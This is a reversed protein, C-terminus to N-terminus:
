EGTAGGRGIRILERGTRVLLAGDVAAVGYVRDPVTLSNRALEIPEAVDAALITATGDVGFVYVRDGNVISTAWAPSPLRAAWRSRGSRQELCRIVGLSNILCVAGGTVVPSSMGATAGRGRWLFKDGALPGRHELPVALTSRSDVSPVVLRGGALVAPSSLRNGSVDDIWWVREGNEADYAEVAGDVSVVVLDSGSRPLVVPTTWASRPPRDAKWRTEGTAPDVALLYSPGDHAVLVFLAEDNGALSSGLGYGKIEGYDATLARSWVPEGDHNLAGIDGSEFLYYVREADVWSTPAGKAVVPTVPTPQSSVLTHRWRLVGTAADVAEVIQTERRPGDIATVFVLGDWVVPSSQGYGGVAHRWAVNEEDSWTLPLDRAPSHGFAPGRFGPWRRAGLPAAPSSRRALGPPADVLGEASRMDVVDSPRLSAVEIRDVEANIRGHAAGGAIHLVGPGAVLAHYARDPEIAYALTEWADAEADLRFLQNSDSVYLNGGTAAIGVGVSRSGGPVPPAPAPALTRTGLDLRHVQLERGRPTIGGAVWIAEGHVAAALSHLRLGETEVVTWAVPDRDLDAVLVDERWDEAPVVPRRRRAGPVEETAPPVWGGFVWLERGVIVAAHDTRGSPMPTLDVWRRDSGDWRELDPRARGAGAPEVGGVRYLDKGDSVIEAGLVADGTWVTTWSADGPALAYLAARGTSAAARSAPPLEGAHVYLVDGVWAGSPNSSAHPLPPATEPRASPALPNQLPPQAHLTVDAGSGAGALLAAALLASATPIRRM